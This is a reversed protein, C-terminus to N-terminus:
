DISVDTEEWQYVPENVEHYFYGTIQGLGMGALNFLRGDRVILTPAKGNVLFGSPLNVRPFEKKRSVTTMSSQKKDQLTTWIIYSNNPDLM